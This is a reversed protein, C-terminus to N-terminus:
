PLYEFKEIVVEVPRQELNQVSLLRLFRHSSDGSRSAPCRRHLCTRQHGEVRPNIASGAVTKFSAVGPNGVFPTPSSVPRCPFDPSTKRFMFRSFWMNRMRARNSQGLPEARHGTRQPGDGKGELDFAFMGLVASPELHASDQVVFRYTGYGLSRTLNVEACTWQGDHTEMRLHLYGKQDTWSM